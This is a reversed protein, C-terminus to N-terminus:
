SQKSQRRKVDSDWAFFNCRHETSAGGTGTNNQYGPGVPRSCLWFKRGQNIGPKNVIWSKAPERHVNCLPPPHPTFLTNWQAVAETRRESPATPLFTESEVPQRDAPEALRAPATTEPRDAPKKPSTEKKNKAFFRTLDPQAPKAGKTTTRRKAPPEAAPKPKPRAPAEAPKPGVDLDPLDDARRKQEAKMDAQARFMTMLKPQTRTCFESYQSAALRHVEGPHAGLKGYLLDALRVEEGEISRVDHLELFVPCHDSGYIAPQIDAATVWPQLGPTILTYDLRTGYNSPRADILTNWCTYMKERQPHHTRTIDMLIGTSPAILAQFWTRAPHAMFEAQTAPSLAAGECHDMPHAVVNMDGVVIM